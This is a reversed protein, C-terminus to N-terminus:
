SIGVTSGGGVQASAGLAAEPAVVSGVELAVDVRRAEIGHTIGLTERALRARATPPGTNNEGHINKSM